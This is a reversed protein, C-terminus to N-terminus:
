GRSMTLYVGLNRKHRIFPDGWVRRWIGRHRFQM